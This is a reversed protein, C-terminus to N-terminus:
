IIQFQVTEEFLTDQVNDCMYAITVRYKGKAMIMTPVEVKPMEFHQPEDSAKYNGMEISDFGVNQWGIGFHKATVNTRRLNDLKMRVIFTLTELRTQGRVVNTAELPEGLENVVKSGLIEIAPGTPTDIGIVAPPPAKPCVLDKVFISLAHCLQMVFGAGSYLCTRKADQENYWKFAFSAPEVADGKPEASRLTFRNKFADFRAPSGNRSLLYVAGLEEIPTSNSSPCSLQLREFQMGTSALHNSVIAHNPVERVVLVDNVFLLYPEARYTPRKEGAGLVPPAKASRLYIKSMDGRRPVELRFIGKQSSPALVFGSAVAGGGKRKRRTQDIQLPVWSEGQKFFMHVYAHGQMNLLESRTMFGGCLHPWPVTVSGKEPEAHSESRSVHRPRSKSKFRLNSAGQSHRAPTDAAESLTTPSQGVDGPSAPEQTDVPASVSRPRSGAM